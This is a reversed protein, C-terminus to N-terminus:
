REAYTKSINNIYKSAKRFSMTDLLNENIEKTETDVRDLDKILSKDYNGKEDPLYINVNEPMDKFASMDQNRMSVIYKLNTCYEFISNGLATNEYIYARQLRENSSFCQNGFYEINKFNENIEFLGTDEFSRSELLKINPALEVTELSSCHQAFCPPLSNVSANVTLRKLKYMESCSYELFQVVSSPITLVTIATSSLFCTGLTLKAGPIIAFDKLNECSQFAYSKISQVTSPITVSTLGSSFFSNSGIKKLGEPFIFTELLPTNFFAESDISEPVSLLTFEKLLVCDRCFEAPIPLNSEYTIKEVLSSELVGPKIDKVNESFVAEKINTLKLCAKGFYQINRFDISTTELSILAGEELETVSKPLIFENIRAGNFALKGIKKLGDKIELSALVAKSFAFKKIAECSEPIILKSAPAKLNELAHAEIAKLSSPLVIEEPFAYYEEYGILVEKSDNEYILGNETYNELIM